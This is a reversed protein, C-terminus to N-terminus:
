LLPQLLPDGRPRRLRGLRRHGREVGPRLAALFPIARRAHARALRHHRSPARAPGEPDASVPQIDYAPGEDSNLSYILVVAEAGEVTESGDAAEGFVVNGAFSEINSVQHLQTIRQLVQADTGELADADYNWLALFNPTYCDDEEGAYAEDDYEPLRKCADSFRVTKGGVEAQLEVTFKHAALLQEVSARDFVNGSKARAYMLLSHGDVGFKSELYKWDQYGRSTTPM